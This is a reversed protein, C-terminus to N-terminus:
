WRMLAKSLVMSRPVRTCSIKGCQKCTASGSSRRFDPAEIFKQEKEMRTQEADSIYGTGHKTSHISM